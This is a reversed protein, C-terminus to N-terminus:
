KDKGQVQHVAEARLRSHKLLHEKMDRKLKANGAAITKAVRANAQSRAAQRM